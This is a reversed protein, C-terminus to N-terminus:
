FILTKKPSLQCLVLNCKYMKHCSISVILLIYFFIWLVPLALSIIQMCLIPVSISHDTETLYFQYSCLSILVGLAFFFFGDINNYMNVRYPRFVLVFISAFMILLTQPICKSRFDPCYAYICLFALRLLLYLSGVFEYDGRMPINPTLSCNWSNINGCNDFCNQVANEVFDLCFSVKALVKNYIKVLPEKSEIESVTTNLEHHCSICIYEQIERIASEDQGQGDKFPSQFPEIFSAFSNLVSFLNM